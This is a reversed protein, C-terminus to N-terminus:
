LAVICAAITASKPSILKGKEPRFIMPKKECPIQDANDLKYTRLFDTISRVIANQHSMMPRYNFNSKDKRLAKADYGIQKLCFHTLFLM